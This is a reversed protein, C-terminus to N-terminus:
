DTEQTYLAYGSCQNAGSFTLNFDAGSACVFHPVLMGGDDRMPDLSLSGFSMAGTMATSGQKFVLTGAALTIHIAFVRITKGAVGAILAVTSGAATDIVVKLPKGGCIM